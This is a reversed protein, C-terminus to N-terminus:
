ATLDRKGLKSQARNLGGLAVLGFGLLLMTAPEPVSGQASTLGRSDQPLNSGVAYLAKLSWQNPDGFLTGSALTVGYKFEYPTGNPVALGASSQSCIFGGGGGSCGGAALGGLILPDSFGAPQSIISTGLINTEQDTIKFSIGYLGTGAGTYGSTDVTYTVTHNDGVSQVDLTYVSGFCNSGGCGTADSYTISLAHATTGTGFLLAAGFLASLLTPVKKRTRM